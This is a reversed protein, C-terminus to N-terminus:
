FTSAATSIVQSDKFYILMAAGQNTKISTM